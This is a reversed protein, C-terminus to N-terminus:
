HYRALFHHHHHCYDYSIVTSRQETNSGLSRLYPLRQIRETLQGPNEFQVIYSAIVDM